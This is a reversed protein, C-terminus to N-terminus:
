DIQFGKLFHYCYRIDRSFTPCLIHGGLKRMWRKGLGSQFKVDVCQCCFEQHSEFNIPPISTDCVSCRTSTHVRKFSKKDYVIVFEIFTRHTHTQMKIKCYCSFIIFLGFVLNIKVATGSLHRYFSSFPLLDIACGIWNLEWSIFFSRLFHKLIYTM